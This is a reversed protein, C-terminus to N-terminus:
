QWVRLFFAWVITAVVSLVIVNLGIDSLMIVNFVSLVIVSLNMNCLMMVIVQIGCM